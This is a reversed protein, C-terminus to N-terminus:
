APVGRADGFGFGDEFLGRAETADPRQLEFGGTLGRVEVGPAGAGAVVACEGQEVFGEDLHRRGEAYTDRVGDRERVRFAGRAAQLPEVREVRRRRLVVLGVPGHAGVEE